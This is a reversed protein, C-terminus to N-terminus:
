VISIKKKDFILFIYIFFHLMAPSWGTLQVPMYFFVHFLSGPFM